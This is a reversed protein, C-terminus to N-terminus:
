CSIQIFDCALLSNCTADNFNRIAGCNRQRCAVCLNWGLCPLCIPCVVCLCTTQLTLFSCKLCNSELKECQRAKRAIAAKKARAARKRGKEILKEVREDKRSQQLERWLSCVQQVALADQPELYEFVQLWIEAPLVEEVPVDEGYGTGSARICCCGM